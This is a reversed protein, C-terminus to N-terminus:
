KYNYLKKNSSPKSDTKPKVKETVGRLDELVSDIVDDTLDDGYQIDLKRKSKILDYVVRMQAETERDLKTIGRKYDYASKQLNQRNRQKIAELKNLLDFKLKNAIQQKGVDGKTYETVNEQGKVPTANQIDLLSSALLHANLKEASTKGDFPLDPKRTQKGTPSTHVPFKDTGDPNKFQEFVDEPLSDYADRVSQSQPTYREWIADLDQSDHNSIFNSINNQLKQVDPIEYNSYVKFGLNDDSYKSIRAKDKQTKSIDSVQKYVKEFNPGEYTFNNLDDMGNEDLLRTPMSAVKSYLEASGKKFRTPNATITSSLRKLYEKKAKSANIKAMASGYHGEAQSYLKGYLEPNKEMLRPNAILQQQTNKWKNYDQMIEDSDEGRIGALDRTLMGLSSYYEKQQAAKLQKEEADYKKAVADISKYVGSLDVPGYAAKLTSESIGLPM